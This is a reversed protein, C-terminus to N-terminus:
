LTFYVIYIKMFMFSVRSKIHVLPACPIFDLILLKCASTKFKFFFFFMQEHLSVFCFAIFSEEFVFYIFFNFSTKFFFWPCFYLYWSVLEGLWLM